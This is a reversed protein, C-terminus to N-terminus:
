SVKPIIQCYKPFPTSRNPFFHTQQEIRSCPPGYCRLHGKNKAPKLKELWKNVEAFPARLLSSWSQTRRAVEGREPFSRFNPRCKLRHLKRGWSRRCSLPFAPAIAPFCAPRGSLLCRSSIDTALGYVSHKRKTSIGTKHFRELNSIGKDGVSNANDIEYM